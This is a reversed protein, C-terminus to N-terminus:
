YLFQMLSQGWHHLLLWSAFDKQFTRIAFGIMGGGMQQISNTDTLQGNICHVYIHFVVIMLMATIRLLEMNSSRKNMVERWEIQLIKHPKAGINRHREDSRGINGDM